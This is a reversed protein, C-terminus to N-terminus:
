TGIQPEELPFRNVPDPLPPRCNCYRMPQVRDLFRIRNFDHIPPIDHINSRMFMQESHFFTSDRVSSRPDTKTTAQLTRIWPHKQVLLSTAGTLSFSLPIVCATNKTPWAVRRQEYRVSGNKSDEPLTPDDDHVMWATMVPLHCKYLKTFSAFLLSMIPRVM